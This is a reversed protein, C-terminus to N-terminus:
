SKAQWPDSFFVTEEDWSSLVRASSQLAVPLNELYQNASNQDQFYEKLLISFRLGDRPTWYSLVRAPPVNRPYTRLFEVAADLTDSEVIEIWWNSSKVAKEPLRIAPIRIRQGAEVRNSNSIDPNVEVIRNVKRHSYVGYVKGVLRWLTENPKLTVQGIIEPIQIEVPESEAMPEAAVPADIVAPPAAAKPRPSESVPQSLPAGQSQLPEAIAEPPSNVEKPPPSAMTPRAEQSEIKAFRVNEREAEPALTESPRWQVAFLLGAAAILTVMAVRWIPHGPGFLSRRVCAGVLGKGVRSRNQIIMALICQHCLNIIKRPYGGTNQYIAWL